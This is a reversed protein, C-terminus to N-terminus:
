AAEIWKTIVDAAIKGAGSRIPYVTTLAKERMYEMQPNGVALMSGTVADVLEGPEASMGVVSADWFRLGHEVFRRYNPGNMLVVPRGTSAFEFITSSNDCVYIDARRCVEDFSQVYEVGISAFKRAMEKRAPHAHGIVDFYRRLEVVDQWFHPLASGAEPVFYAEWHFSVAVVTSGNANERKPLTDLRPSGIIAVDAWPYRNKWRDASHENPVLFLGVDGNDQGGPYSPHDASAPDGGYSQGAGHQALIFRSFTRRARKLDGYSPCLAIDKTSRQTLSWSGKPLEALIPTLHDRHHDKAAVPIIM